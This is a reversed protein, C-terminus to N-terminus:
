NHKHKLEALVAFPNERTEDEQVQYDQLFGRCHSDDAHVPVLPLALLVEDTIIDAVSAPEDTALLAEYRPPLAAAGAEDQVIGLRFKLDLIETVPELCRQCKLLVEGRITGAVYRIGAPDKGLELEVALDGEGSELLPLVRELRALPMRGHLVRGAETSALLDLREPLHDIM